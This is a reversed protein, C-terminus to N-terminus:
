VIQIKNSIRPDLFLLIFTFNDSFPSEQSLIHTNALLALIM